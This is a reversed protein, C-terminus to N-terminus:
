ICFYITARDGVDKQGQTVNKLFIWNTGLVVFWFKKRVSGGGGGGCVCVTLLM